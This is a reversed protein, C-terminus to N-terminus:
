HDSPTDSAISQKVIAGIRPRLLRSMAEAIAPGTLDHQVRGADMAVRFGSVVSDDGKIDIGGRMRDAFQERFYSELTERQEPAVLVELRSEGQRGAYAEVMSQVLTKVTDEDMAANVETKVLGDMARKLTEGVSLVVDRAAQQLSREARQRFAAADQEAAERAAAAKQEAEALIADAKAEAEEVIRARESEAREVGDQQIRELLSKLEEAM